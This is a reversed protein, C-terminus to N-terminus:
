LLNDTLNKERLLTEIEYRVEEFNYNPYVYILICNNKECLRKKKDDLNQQKEFAEIGGFYDVPENHQLGQYEIGINKQIFYIDLHQRGLWMPSGHHTIKEDPFAEKIQRYLITESIWGEGIKPISNEERLINECERVIDAELQIFAEEIIQPVEKHFVCCEEYQYYRPRGGFLYSKGYEMRFLQENASEIQNAIYNEYANEDEFDGIKLNCYKQPAKIVNNMSKIEENKLKSIKIHSKKLQKFWGLKSKYYNDKYIRFNDGVIYGELEAYDEESLNWVDFKSYFYDKVNMGKESKFDKLYMKTVEIIGKLNDLGYNTLCKKNGMVLFFAEDLLVLDVEEMKNFEDIIEDFDVTSDQTTSSIIYSRIKYEIYKRKNGVILYADQWWVYLRKKIADYSGYYKDMKMFERSLVSIDKTKIFVDIVDHLYLFLYQVRGNVEVIIDNEYNKLWYKYFKIQEENAQEKDTLANEWAPVIITSKDIELCLKNKFKEQHFLLFDEICDVHEQIEDFNMNSLKDLYKNLQEQNLDILNINNIESDLLFKFINKRRFKYTQPINCTISVLYGDYYNQYDLDTSFNHRALPNSLYKLIWDLDWDKYDKKYEAIKNCEINTFYVSYVEELKPLNFINYKHYEM